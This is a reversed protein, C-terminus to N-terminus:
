SFQMPKQCIMMETSPSESLHSALFLESPYLIGGWLQGLLHVKKIPFVMLRWLLRLLNSKTDVPFNMWVFMPVRDVIQFGTKNLIDEIEALSRNVQFSSRETKHHLFNESFFFIGGNQLLDFINKIAAEYRSDDTIHFLMDFASVIGYQGPVLVQLPDSIDMQYFRASPFARKLNEVSVNTIDVGTISRVGLEKWREVYFGTGSGIDLVDTNSFNVNTSRLIRSFVSQRVRYLWTNYPKGLGLYGVGELGFNSELRSQWYDMPKSQAM